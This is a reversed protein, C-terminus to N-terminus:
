KKQETVAKKLILNEATLLKNKTMLEANIAKLVHIERELYMNKLKLEEDKTEHVIFGKENQSENTKCDNEKLNTITTGQEELIGQLEKFDYPDKLITQETKSLCINVNFATLPISFGLANDLSVSVNNSSPLPDLNHTEGQLISDNHRKRRRYSVNSNHNFINIDNFVAQEKLKDELKNIKAVPRKGLDTITEGQEKLHSEQKDDDYTFYQDSVIQAKECSASNNSPLKKTPVAFKSLQFINTDGSVNLDDPNKIFCDEQFHVSCVHACNLDINKKGCAKMWKAATEPDKPFKFYRIGRDKTEENENECYKVSCNSSM